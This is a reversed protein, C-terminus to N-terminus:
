YLIKSGHTHFANYIICSYSFFSEFLMILSGSIYTKTRSNKKKQIHM